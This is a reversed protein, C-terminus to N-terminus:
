SAIAGAQAREQLYGPGYDCIDLLVCRECEPKRAHCVERGHRILNLHAAYYAEPPLLQEMLTHTKEASMKEPRLGLRGTVRHIHTDVPFAPMDLSFLLVIAATKPGVGKFKMLWNKAQSPDLDKLFELSLRGREAEIGQLVGQIRPAKQNALGATRIADIVDDTDAKRV